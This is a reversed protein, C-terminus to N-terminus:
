KSHQPHHEVASAHEPSFPGRSLRCCFSPEPTRHAFQYEVSAHRHVDGVVDAVNQLSCATCITSQGIMRAM